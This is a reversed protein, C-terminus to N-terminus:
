IDDSIVETSIQECSPKEKILFTGDPFHKLEIAKGNLKIM